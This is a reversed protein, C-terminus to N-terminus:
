RFPEVTPRWRIAVLPVRGSAVQPNEARGFCDQLHSRIWPPKGDKTTFEELHLGGGSAHQRSRAVSPACAAAGLSGRVIDLLSRSRIDAFSSQGICAKTLAARIDVDTPAPPGGHHAAFRARALWREFADPDKQDSALARM